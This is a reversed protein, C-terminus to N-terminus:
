SVHEYYTHGAIAPPRRAARGGRPPDPMDPMIVGLFREAGIGAAALFARDDSERISHGVRISVDAADGWNDWLSSGARGGDLIALDFVEAAEGIFYVDGDRALDAALRGAGPIAPAIYLGHAVQDPLAAKLTGLFDVVVPPADAAVAGALRSRAGHAEILLVRRGTQAAERALDLAAAATTASEELTGVVVTLPCGPRPSIDWLHDLIDGARASPTRTELELRGSAMATTAAPGDDRIAWRAARAELRRGSRRTKWAAVATLLGSLAAVLHGLPMPLGAASDPVAAPAILRYPPASRAGAAAGAQSRALAEDAANAALRAEDAEQRAEPSVSSGSSVVAAEADRAHEWNAKAVQTLREWEAQLRKAALRMANDLTAAGSYKAGIERKALVLQRKLELYDAQLPAISPPLGTQAGVPPSGSALMAEFAEFHTRARLTFAAAKARRQVPDINALAADLRGHAAAALGSLKQVAEGGIDQLRRDHAAAAGNEIDLFATVVANATAAAGAGTTGAAEIVLAGASADPMAVARAALADADLDLAQGPAAAFYGQDRLMEAARLFVPRATALIAAQELAGAGRLRPTVGAIAHAKYAPGNACLMDLGGAVALGLGLAFALRSVSAQRFLGPRHTEAYPQVPIM